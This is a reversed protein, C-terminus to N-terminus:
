KLECVYEVQPYIERIRDDFARLEDENFVNGLSLMMRQHTVKTFNDLVQGGVRQTPSDPTIWEPNKSELAQLEQMLRDYEQDTVTPNDLVHYQYNYENLLKKIENLRELSM